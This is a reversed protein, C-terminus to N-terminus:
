MARWTELCHKALATVWSPCQPDFALGFRPSVIFGGREFASPDNGRVFAALSPFLIARTGIFLVPALRTIEELRGSDQFRFVVDGYDFENLEVSNRLRKNPQGRKAVIESQTSTFSTGDVSVFPELNM